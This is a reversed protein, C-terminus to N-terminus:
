PHGGAHFYWVAMAMAPVLEAIECAAGLTDGTAGGIRRYTYVSFLLVAALSAGRRRRRRRRPRAM